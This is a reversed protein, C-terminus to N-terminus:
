FDTVSIQDTLPQPIFNIKVFNKKLMYDKNYIEVREIEHYLKIKETKKCNLAEIARAKRELYTFYNPFNKLFQQAGCALYPHRPSDGFPALVKTMALDEKLTEYEQVEREDLDIQPV